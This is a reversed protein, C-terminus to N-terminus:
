QCVIAAVDGFTAANHADNRFHSHCGVVLAGDDGHVVSFVQDVVVGNKLDHTLTAVGVTGGPHNVTQDKWNESYSTFGTQQIGDCEKVFQYFSSWTAIALSDQKMLPHTISSEFLIGQDYKNFYTQVAAKTEAEYRYMSEPKSPKEFCGMLLFVSCVISIAYVSTRM